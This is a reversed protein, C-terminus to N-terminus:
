LLNTEMIVISLVVKGGHTTMEGGALAIISFCECRKGPNDLAIADCSVCMCMCVYLICMRNERKIQIPNLPAVSVWLRINLMPIMM